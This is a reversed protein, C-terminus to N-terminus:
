RLTTVTCYDSSLGVGISPAFLVLVMSSFLCFARCATNDWISFCNPVPDIMRMPSSPATGFTSAIEVPDNLRSIASPTASSWLMEVKYDIFVGDKEIEQYTLGHEPSLHAGTVIIQLDINPDNDIAKILLSM